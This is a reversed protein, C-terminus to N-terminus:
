FNNLIFEKLDKITGQYTPISATENLVSDTVLYFDIGCKLCAGDTLGDNGIMLVEEQNLGLKNLVEQYYNPNPKAYHCNDYCTVYSFYSLDLDNWRLREVNAIEPFVSNTTLILQYQKEKLYNVIEVMDQNKIACPRVEEYLRKGYFENLDEELKQHNLSIRQDMYNWFAAQNLVSGDNEVMSQESKLILKALELPNDYGKESLLKALSGVYLKIFLQYDEIVLTGDLDFFITQYKKM